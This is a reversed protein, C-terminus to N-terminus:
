CSPCPITTTAGYREEMQIYSKTKAGLPNPKCNAKKSKTEKKVAPKTKKTAM